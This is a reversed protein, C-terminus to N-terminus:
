VHPSKESAFSGNEFKGTKKYLQIQFVVGEMNNVDRPLFPWSSSLKATASISQPLARKHLKILADQREVPDVLEKFSGWCIASKWNGTNQMSDVEFCVNTNKRMMSIKMGELTHAFVHKGDYAYSIPVIYTVSDSHCGIRGICQQHLLEEIEEPNLIGFM